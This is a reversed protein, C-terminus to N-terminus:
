AGDEIQHHIKKKGDYRENIYRALNKNLYNLYRCAYHILLIFIFFDTVSWYIQLKKYIHSM